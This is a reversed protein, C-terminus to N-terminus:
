FLSCFMCSSPMPIGTYASTMKRLINKSHICFLNLLFVICAVPLIYQNFLVVAAPLCILLLGSHTGYVSVAFRMGIIEAALMGLTLFDIIYFHM